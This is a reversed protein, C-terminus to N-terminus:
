IYVPSEAPDPQEASNTTGDPLSPVAVGKEQAIRRYMPEQLTNVTRHARPHELGYLDRCNEHRCIFNPRLTIFFLLM